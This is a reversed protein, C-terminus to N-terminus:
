PSNGVGVFAPFVNSPQYVSTFPCPVFIVAVDITVCVSICVNYAFQFYSKLFRLLAGEDTPSAGKRHVDQVERSHFITSLRELINYFLLYLLTTTSAWM